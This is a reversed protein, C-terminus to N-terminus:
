IQNKIVQLNILQDEAVIIAELNQLQSLDEGDPEGSNSYM